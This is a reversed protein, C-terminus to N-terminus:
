SADIILAALLHSVALSLTLTFSLSPSLSLSPTDADASLSKNETHWIRQSSISIVQAFSCIAAAFRLLLYPESTGTPRVGLTEFAHLLFFVM